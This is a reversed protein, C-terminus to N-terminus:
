ENINREQDINLNKNLSVIFSTGKLDSEVEITGNHLKVINKAIALGLGTGGTENSRSNEVRYFRDFLLPLDKEPIVMGYNTVYIKVYEDYDKIKVDVRKGDGGYKIANNILNDFLRVLLKPDATIDINDKNSTLEFALGKELFNPYFEDMLQQMLRVIDIKEINMVIKGHNLKTFGFLDEILQQLKKSKTYVVDIYKRKTDEDLKNYTENNNLLGLYGIISTLPTRLDHAVNTILENKSRELEREKDMLRAIDATMTNLQLAIESLEDDGYIEIGVDKRGNVIDKVRDSITKIYQYTKRNFFWFVTVFIIVGIIVFFMVISIERVVFFNFNM